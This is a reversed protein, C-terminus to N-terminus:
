CCWPQDAEFAEWLKGRVIYNRSTTCGPMASSAMGCGPYRMTNM